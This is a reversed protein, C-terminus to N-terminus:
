FFNKENGLLNSKVGGLIVMVLADDPLVEIKHRSALHKGTCEFIIILEILVDVTNSRSNFAWEFVTSADNFASAVLSWSSQFADGPMEEMEDM